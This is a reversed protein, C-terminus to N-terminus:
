IWTNKTLSKKKPQTPPGDAPEVQNQWNWKHHLCHHPVGTVRLVSEKKDGNPIVAILAHFIKEFWWRRRCELLSILLTVRDEGQRQAEKWGRVGRKSTDAFYHFKILDWYSISFSLVFHQIQANLVCPQSFKYYNYLYSYHFDIYCCHLRELFSSLCSSVWSVMLKKKSPKRLKV